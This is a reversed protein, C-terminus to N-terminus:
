QTRIRTEIIKLATYNFTHWIRFRAILQASLRVRTQVFIEQMLVTVFRRLLELCSATIENSRHSGVRHNPVQQLNFISVVSIDHDIRISMNNM